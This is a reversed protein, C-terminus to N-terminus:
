GANPYPSDFAAVEDGYRFTHSYPHAYVPNQWGGEIYVESKLSNANDHVLRYALTPETANGLGDVKIGDVDYSIFFDDMVNRLYSQFGPHNLDYVFSRVGDADGLPILWEPEQDILGRLGNWNGDTRNDDVYPLSFYLVVRSGKQHAYDVLARIGSPFKEQDVARWDSGPRGETVYWGADLLVHWPGLDSLYNAIYEIHRRMGAEDVGIYYVYWSLV